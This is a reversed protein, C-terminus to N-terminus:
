EDEIPEKSFESATDESLNNAADSLSYIWLYIPKTFTVVSDDLEIYSGTITVKHYGERMDRLLENEIRIANSSQDFLAM